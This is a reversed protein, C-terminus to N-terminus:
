AKKEKADSLAMMLASTLVFTHVAAVYESRPKFGGFAYRLSVGQLVCDWALSFAVAVATAVLPVGVPRLQRHVHELMTESPGGLGLCVLVLAQVTLLVLVAQAAVEAWAGRWAVAMPLVTLRLAVYLVVVLLPSGSRRPGEAAQSGAVVTASKGTRARNSINTSPTSPISLVSSSSSSSSSSSYSSSPTSSSGSSGSGGQGLRPSFKVGLLGQLLNRRLAQGLGRNLFHKEKRPSDFEPIIDPRETIPRFSMTSPLLAHHGAWGWGRRECLWRLRPLVIQAYFIDERIRRNYERGLEDAQEDPLIRSATSNLPALALEPLVSSM